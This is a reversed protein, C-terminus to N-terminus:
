RHLQHAQHESLFVGLSTQRSCISLVLVRLCCARSADCTFLLCATQRWSSFIGEAFFTPRSTSLILLSCNNPSFFSSGQLLGCVGLCLFVTKVLFRHPELLCIWGTNAVSLVVRRVSLSSISAARASCKLESCFLCDTMESSASSSLDSSSVICCSSMLCIRVSTAFAM